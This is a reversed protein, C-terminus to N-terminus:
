AVIAFAFSFVNEIRQLLDNVFSRIQYETCSAVVTPVHFENMRKNTPCVKSATGMGFINERLIVEILGRAPPMRLGMLESLEKYTWPSSSPIPDAHACSM